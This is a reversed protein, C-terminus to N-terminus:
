GLDRGTYAKIARRGNELLAYQEILKKKHDQIRGFAASDQELVKEVLPILAQIYLEGEAAFLIKEFYSQRSALVETLKEWASSDLCNEIDTSFGALCQSIEEIAGTFVRQMM